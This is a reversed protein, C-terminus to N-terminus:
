RCTRSALLRSFLASGQSNLHGDDRWNEPLYLEPVTVPDLFILTRHPLAQRYHNAMAAENWVVSPMALAQAEGALAEALRYQEALVPAWDMDGFDALPARSAWGDRRELFGAVASSDVLSREGPPLQGRHADWSPLDLRPSAMALDNIVGVGLNRRLWLRVLRQMERERAALSEPNAAAERLVPALSGITLFARKTRSDSYNAVSNVRPEFFVSRLRSPPDQGLELLLHRYEVYTIGSLGLNFSRSPCGLRAREADFIVPDLGLEIRSSGLFLTDIEDRHDRYWQLKSHLHPNSRTAPWGWATLQGIAFGTLILGTLFLAASRVGRAVALLPPWQWSAAARRAVAQLVATLWRRRRWALALLLLLAALGSAAAAVAAHEPAEVLLWWRHRRADGGEPDSLIVWGHWLSYRGGGRAAIAAHEAHPIGTEEFAEACPRLATAPGLLRCAWGPEGRQRYLHPALRQTSESMEPDPLRAAFGAGTHPTLAEIPFFHALVPLRAGEQWMALAALLLLGALALLLRDLGQSPRDARHHPSAM